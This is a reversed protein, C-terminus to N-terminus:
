IKARKVVCLTGNHEFATPVSGREFCAHPGLDEGVSIYAADLANLCLEMLTEVGENEDAARFVFKRGRLVITKPGSEFRLFNDANVEWKRAMAAAYCRIRRDVMTETQQEEGNDM